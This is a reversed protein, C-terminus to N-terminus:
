IQCFVKEFEFEQEIAELWTEVNEGLEGDNPFLISFVQSFTRNPNRFRGAMKAYKNALHPKSAIIEFFQHVM